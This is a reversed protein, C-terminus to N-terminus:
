VDSKNEHKEEDATPQKILDYGLNSAAQKVLRLDIAEQGIEEDETIWALVSVHREGEYAKLWYGNM